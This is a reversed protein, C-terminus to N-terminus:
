VTTGGTGDHQAKIDKALQQFDAQLKALDDTIPKADTTLKERAAKVAPDNTILDQIAKFDGQIETRAATQDAKLKTLDAQVKTADGKDGILTVSRATTRIGQSM